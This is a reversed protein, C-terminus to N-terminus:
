VDFDSEEIENEWFDNDIDELQKLSEKIFDIDFLGNKEMYETIM